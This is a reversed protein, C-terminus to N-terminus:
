KVNKSLMEKFPETIIVSNTPTEWLELKNLTVYDREYAKKYNECENYIWSFLMKGIVEATPQLKNHTPCIRQRCTEPHSDSYHKIMGYWPDDESLILAHDLRADIWGEIEYKIKGFDIIMGNYEGNYENGRDKIIMEGSFYFKARYTHGHINSCVGKYLHLRHAADFTVEVTIEDM